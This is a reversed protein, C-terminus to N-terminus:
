KGARAALTIAGAQEQARLYTMLDALSLPEFEGSLFDRIELATRHQGLLIALEATMNPPIRSPAGGAGRGGASRGGGGPGGRGGAPATREVVLRAAEKEAETQQPEASSTKMTAAALRYSATVESLLTTARQDILPDLVTLKKEGDAPSAFLVSSSHLVAKEVAAQHKVAVKAEKYADVLEAPTTADGIYALGKRQNEGMRESGRGLAENAVKVAAQDDATALVTMAASGVIAARKFQTPDLKDPTDQSSHYWPDPWTAFIVAPIGHQMYTVHDSSGYHKDVKIYFADHSGNPAIAPLSPTYGNGRYRVRERNTESVWELTSQAVDNLFSPYSDPTRHLVWYAGAPALRLGEMDFNLDAIIRKNLDPHANLWANTGSIEPVWLFHITRHNKPLLGAKMLALYTRGMELTLACGSNDDNAGQKITGEYLHGSVVIDQQSTGDGPITAHVVELEGPFSQGNIVSRITVKEGRGLRASLDRAVRPAISWGFGASGGAPAAGMSQWLMADPPDGLRLSNYSLVGVAGREFVALRQLATAAASGLVIKGKVDKGAYDETRAGNGVDVVDATVDGNASNNALAVPTDYIDFLKRPHGDMLWLQGQTPQWLPQPTPFSEIQVDSFGYERAFRAMVESERFHVAGSGYESLPRVRQYPVLEMIHHQAREGSAENVIARMQDLNLLTRDEREQARAPAAIAAGTALLFASLPLLRRIM